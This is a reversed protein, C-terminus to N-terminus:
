KPDLQAAVLADRDARQDPSLKFFLSLNEIREDPAMRGLDNEPIASPHAANPLRVFGSRLSVNVPDAVPHPPAALERTATVGDAPATAETCGGVLGAFAAFSWSAFWGARTLGRVMGSRSM